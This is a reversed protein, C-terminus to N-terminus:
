EFHHEKGKITASVPHIMHVGHTNTGYRLEMEELDSVSVKSGRQGLKQVIRQAMDLYLSDLIPSGFVITNGKEKQKQKWMKWGTDMVLEDGWIQCLKRKKQNLEAHDAIKNQHKWRNLHQVFDTKNMSISHHSAMQLMSYISGPIYVLYELQYQNELQLFQYSDEPFHDFRINMEGLEGRNPPLRDLMNKWEAQSNIQKYFDLPDKEFSQGIQHQSTVDMELYPLLGGEQPKTKGKYQQGM